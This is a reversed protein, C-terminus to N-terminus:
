VKGIVQILGKDFFKFRLVLFGDMNSFFVRNVKVLPKPKKRLILVKSPPELLYQKYFNGLKPPERPQAM